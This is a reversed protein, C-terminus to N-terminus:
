HRSRYSPSPTYHYEPRTPTVIQQRYVPVQIVFPYNHGNYFNYRNYFWSDSILNVSTHPVVTPSNDYYKDITRIQKGTSDTTVTEIVRVPTCSNLLLIFLVCISIIKKM